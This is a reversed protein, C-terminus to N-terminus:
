HLNGLDDVLVLKGDSKERMEWYANLRCDCFDLRIILRDWTRCQSCSTNTRAPPGTGGVSRM